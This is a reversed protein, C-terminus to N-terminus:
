TTKGCGFPGVLSVLEGEAIDLTVDSVVLVNGGRGRYTKRMNRLRILPETM